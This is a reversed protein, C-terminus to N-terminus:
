GLQMKSCINMAYINFLSFLSDILVCARYSLLQYVPFLSIVTPTAPFIM